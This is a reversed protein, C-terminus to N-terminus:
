QLDKSALEKVIQHKNAQKEYSRIESYKEIVQEELVKTISEIQELSSLAKEQVKMREDDVDFAGNEHMFEPVLPLPRALYQILVAIPPNMHELTSVVDAPIRQAKTRLSYLAGLGVQYFTKMPVQSALDASVIGEEKKQIIQLGINIAGFVQESILKLQMDEAFDGLFFVVASNLIKSLESQVEYLREETYDELVSFLPQFRTGRNLLPILPYDAFILNDSKGSNIIEKIEAHADELRMSKNLEVAEDSTPIYESLLRRSREFFASEEFELSTGEQAHLLLQYFTDRNTQYLFALLKGLLRHREPDHTKFAIWTSGSDPSYYNPGPPHDDREEHYEVEVYRRILLAMLDPDMSAIFKQLPILDRPDDIADLWAWLRDERFSDKTWLEFDLITRYQAQSVTGLLEPCSDLGLHKIAMYLNQAPLARVQTDELDGRFLARALVQVDDELNGPGGILALKNMICQILKEIHIILGSCSVNSLM